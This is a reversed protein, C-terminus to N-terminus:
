PLLNEVLTPFVYDPRSLNPYLRPAVLGPVIIILPLLFKLYQTFVVGMRANWEDKAALARQVIFQNAACYFTSICLTGGLYVTWPFDPDSEPLLLDWAGRAKSAEMAPASGGGAHIAAIALSVGGMLLVALQLM